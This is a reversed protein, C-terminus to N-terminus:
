RCGGAGLDARGPGPPPVAGPRAYGQRAGATHAPQPHRPNGGIHDAGEVVRAIFDARQAEPVGAQLTEIALRLSTVPTRLEHALNAVFEARVAELRRLESIDEWFLVAGGDQLPAGSMRLLRGFHAADIDWPGPDGAVIEQARDEAAPTRTFAILTSPLPPADFLERAAHSSDVVRRREDIRAWLFPAQRLAALADPSPM